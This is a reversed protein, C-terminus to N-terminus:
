TRRSLDLITCQLDDLDDLVSTHALVDGHSMMPRDTQCRGGFAGVTSRNMILPVLEATAKKQFGYCVSVVRTCPTFNTPNRPTNKCLGIAIPPPYPQNFPM